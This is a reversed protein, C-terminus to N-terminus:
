RIPCTRTESVPHHNLSDRRSTKAPFHPVPNRSKSIQLGHSLVGGGYDSNGGADGSAFASVCRTLNQAVAEREEAQLDRVATDNGIVTQFDLPGNETVAIELISQQEDEGAAGAWCRVIDGRLRNDRKKLTSVVPDLVRKEFITALGSRTRRHGPAYDACAALGRDNSQWTRGSGALVRELSERREHRMQKGQAGPRQIRMLSTGSRASNREGAVRSM